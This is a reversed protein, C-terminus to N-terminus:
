RVAKMQMRAKLDALERELAEVRVSDICHKEILYYIPSVDRTAEIFRELDDLTFRMSDGPSQALKRGLHSTSLDMDAAVAKVPMGQHHVAHAVYERCSEYATVYSADFDFSVQRM